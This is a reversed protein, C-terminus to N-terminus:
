RTVQLVLSSEYEFAGPRGELTSFPVSGGTLPSIDSYEDTCIATNENESTIIGRRPLNYTRECSGSYFQWPLWPDNETKRKYIAFSEPRSSYFKLRIYTVEYEKGTIFIFKVSLTNYLM